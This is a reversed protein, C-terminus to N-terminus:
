RDSLKADWNDDSDLEGIVDDLKAARLAGLMAAGDYRDPKAPYTVAARLTGIPIYPRQPLLLIDADAPL